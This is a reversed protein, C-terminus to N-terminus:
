SVEVGNAQALQAMVKLLTKSIEDQKEGVTPYVYRGAKYFPRKTAKARGVAGGFDLWPYYRAKQGGASIKAQTQTSAAKLSARAAGTRSPIKPRAADVVVDAVENLGIRVAKGLDRDMGRMGRQFEKLGGVALTMRGM